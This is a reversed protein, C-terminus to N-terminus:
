VYHKFCGYRNRAKIRCALCTWACKSNGPVNRGNCECEERIQSDRLMCRSAPRKLRSSQRLLVSDAINKDESTDRPGHQGCDSHDSESATPDERTLYLMPEGDESSTCNTIDVGRLPHVDKVDSPTRDVLVSHPSYVGTITGKGFQTTCREHPIKVWVSDGVKYSNPGADELPLIVDIGKIHAPYSYIVNAPATSASADDKPTVNYWYVAEMVSCRTRTAIRKITCHSREVIRNGAPIYACRFRIWIGWHEAFKSFTQGRFSKTNDTLLEVPVGRELQQIISAFDQCLLLRWIAFRSPGCDILTLYHRSELHTVDIGVRRWNECIDLRGAKWSVPAPDISQCEKCETVVEWM